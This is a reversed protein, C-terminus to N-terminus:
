PAKGGPGTVLVNPAPERLATSRLVSGCCTARSARECGAAQFPGNQTPEATCGGAAGEGGIVACPMPAIACRPPLCVCAEPPVDAGRREPDAWFAEGVMPVNACREVSVSPAAGARHTDRAASLCPGLTAELTVSDAARSGRGGPAV